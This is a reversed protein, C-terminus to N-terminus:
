EYSRHIIGHSVQDYACLYRPSLKFTSACVIIPVSHLKAALALAHTGNPAILGGDATVANTGIIVQM